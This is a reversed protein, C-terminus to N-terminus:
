QTVHMRIFMTSNGNTPMGIEMVPDGNAVGLQRSLTPTQPPSWNQLDTSTEVKVSTTTGTLAPNQRYTLTLFQTGPQATTDTGVVPLGARDSASMSQNPNINFVYKLLNPVGDNRPTATPPTVVSFTNAWGAYSNSGAAVIDVTAAQSVGLSYNSSPAVTATVVSATATSLATVPITTSASGDAIMTTGTLPATYDTGSRATGSVTYGVALAGSTPGTRTFTLSGAQGGPVAIAVPATVSIAAPDPSVTINVVDSGTQSGQTATAAIQYVGPATFGITASGTGSPSITVSGPGSVKSWTIPDNAVSSTVTASLTASESLHVTQDTGAYVVPAATGPAISISSCGILGLNYYYGAVGYNLNGIWQSSAYLINGNASIAMDTPMLSAASSIPFDAVPTGDVRNFRRIAGASGGYVFNGNPLFSFAVGNDSYASSDQWTSTVGTAMNTTGLGYVGGSSSYIRQYTDDIGIDYLNELEFPYSIALTPLGTSNITYTDIDGIGTTGNTSACLMTHDSNTRLISGTFDSEGFTGLLKGTADLQGIHQFTNDACSAYINGDSGIAINLPQFTLNIIDSQQLDPLSIVQIQKAATLAVYLHSGDASMAINGFGPAAALRVTQAVVGADTNIALLRLNTNDVVYALDRNPDSLMDGIAFNVQTEARMPANVYLTYPIIQQAGNNYSVTFTLPIGHGDTASPSVAVSFGAPSFTAFSSVTGISSSTPSHLTALSDTTTMAVTVGTIQINLFNKFIPALDVTQGPHVYGDNSGPPPDTVGMSQLTIPSPGPLSLDISGGILGVEYNQGDVTSQTTGDYGAVVYLTRGNPTTAMDRPVLDLGSYYGDISYSYVEQQSTPSYYDISSGPSEIGLLLGGGPAINVADPGGTASTPWSTAASGDFPLTIVSSSYSAAIYYRSNAEDVVFDPILSPVSVDSGIQVPSGTGTTAYRYIHTTSISTNDDYTMLSAYLETGAANRRLLGVGYGGSSVPSVFAQGSQSLVQGTTSNIQVLKQTADTTTCYLHNQADTALSVPQFPFNWTAMTTFSPLSIKQISNTQPEALYLLSGDVSEAMMGSNQGQWNVSQTGTIPLTNAVHGADTDFALLKMDTKDVMYVVNRQQDALIEGYQLTTTIENNITTPQVIFQYPYTQPTGSASTLTFTLSVVTGAPIGTALQVRFPTAVVASGGASLDGASQTASGLVTAHAGGSVGITVGSAATAGLNAVVPTLDIIEGSNAVGDGNGERDSFGTSSLALDVGASETPPNTVNVNIGGILGFIAKNNEAFTSCVFLARGNPTAAIGDTQVSSTPTFTGLLNGTTRDLSTIVSSYITSASYVVPSGQGFSVTNSAQTPWMTSYDDTALKLVNIGNSSCIYMQNNADDIAFAGTTNADLVFQVLTPTPVSIDFEPFGNGTLTRREGSSVFLRTGNFASHVLPDYITYDLDTALTQVLQGNTANVEVISGFQTDTTAFLRGGAGCALGNPTFTVPLTILPTLSPLSFVEIKQADPLSLYLKSDDTSVAMLGMSYTGPSGYSTPLTADTGSVAALQGSDTSIAMIRGNTIDTAYVLNRVPDAQIEGCQFNMMSTESFGRSAVVIATVTGHVDSVGTAHLVIEFNLVSGIPANSAIQIRFPSATTVSQHGLVTGVSLTGTLVTADSQDSTITATVGNVTAGGPNLITPTFHIIEGPNAAGDGDGESDDFTTQSLQLVGPSGQWNPNVVNYANLRGATQVLGGLQPLETVRALLLARLQAVTLSPNQALALAAVGSVHPTAMSTGSIQGYSTPLGEETMAATAVTPFTSLIGVGPAALQVSNTGYDSFDALQDNDDTAAVSIINASAFDAPYTPNQDSNASDNGAAVVFLAGATNAADISDKLAQSYGGGGWSNSLIRAGVATAYTIASVADSTYGSGTSDLFKLPLLKVKWTVGAIGVGNNGVAGITGSVHTGHYFDDQPNNNGAVFNWGHVDNAYGHQGPNPNTWINAQLDPHNFDIGSDIVAVIVNPSQNIISWADEADIDDQPTGSTQGINHLGWDGPFQPDNPVLSAHIVSDAEAYKLVGSFKSYTQVANPLTDINANALQVLYLGPVPTKVLSGGNNAALQALTNENSGPKLAVMIHDAVAAQQTLVTEAGNPGFSLSEEVRLLPYKMNTRYLSVRQVHGDADPKADRFSLRTAHKLFFQRGLDAMPYARKSGTPRLFRPATSSTKMGAVPLGSNSGGTSPTGVSLGLKRSSAGSSDGSKDVKSITGARFTYFAVLILVFAGPIFWKAKM